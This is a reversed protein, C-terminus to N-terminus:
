RGLAMAKLMVVKAYNLASERDGSEMSAIYADVVARNDLALKEDPNLDRQITETVTLMPNFERRSM